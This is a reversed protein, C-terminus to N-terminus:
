HIKKNQNEQNDNDKQKDKRSNYFKIIINESKKNNKNEENNNILLNLNLHTYETSFLNYLIDYFIEKSKKDKEDLTKISSILCTLYEIKEKILYYNFKQNNKLNLCIIMLYIINNQFLILNYYTKEKLYNNYANKLSDFLLFILRQVLVEDGLYKM